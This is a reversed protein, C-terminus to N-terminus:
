TLHPTPPWCACMATTKRRLGLEVLPSEVNCKSDERTKKFETMAVNSNVKQDCKVLPNEVHISCQEIYLINHYFNDRSVNKLLILNLFM